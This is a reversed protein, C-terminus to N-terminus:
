RDWGTKTLICPCQIVLRALTWSDQCGNRSRRYDGGSDRAKNMRNSMKSSFFWAEQVLSFAGANKCAGGVNANSAGQPWATPGTGWSRGAWTAGGRTGGNRINYPGRPPRLALTVASKLSVPKATSEGVAGLPAPSPAWAKGQWMSIIGRYNPFSVPVPNVSPKKRRQSLFSRPVANTDTSSADHIKPKQHVSVVQEMVSAVMCPMIVSAPARPTGGPAPTCTIPKPLGSPTLRLGWHHTNANSGSPNAM